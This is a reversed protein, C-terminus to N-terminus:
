EKIDARVPNSNITEPTIRSSRQRGALQGALTSFHKLIPSEPAFDAVGQQRAAADVMIPDDGLFGYFVPSRGLFQDTIIVFTRDGVRNIDRLNNM